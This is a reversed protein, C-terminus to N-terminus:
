TLNVDIWKDPACLALCIDPRLADPGFPESGRALRIWKDCRVYKAIFRDIEVERSEQM